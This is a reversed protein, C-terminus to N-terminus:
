PRKRYDFFKEGLTAELNSFFKEAAVEQETMMGGRPVGEAAPCKGPMILSGFLMVLLVMLSWCITKRMIRGEGKRGERDERYEELAENGFFKRPSSGYSRYRFFCSNM